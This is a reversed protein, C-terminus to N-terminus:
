YGGGLDVFPSPNPALRDDDIFTAVLSVELVAPAVQGALLQDAAAPLRGDAAAVSRVALRVVAAVVLDPPGLAAFEDAVRGTADGEQVSDDSIGWVAREVGTVLLVVDRVRAVCVVVVQEVEPEM